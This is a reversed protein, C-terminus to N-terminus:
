DLDFFSMMATNLQAQREDFCTHHCLECRITIGGVTKEAAEQDFLGM